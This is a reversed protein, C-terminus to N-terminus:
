KVEEGKDTFYVTSENGEQDALVLQYVATEDENLKVAASKITTDPYAKLASDAVVQPVDKVEIAVFDDEAQLETQVSPQSTQVTQAFTITSMSLLMAAAFIMKKM